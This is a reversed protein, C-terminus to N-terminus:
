RARRLWAEILGAMVRAEPYRGFAKGVAFTEGPPNRLLLTPQYYRRGKTGKGERLSAAEIDALPVQARESGFFGRIHSEVIGANRDFRVQQFSTFAVMGAACVAAVVLLFVGTLTEGGRLARLSLALMTFMLVALVIALVGPRRALVLYDDDYRRVRM